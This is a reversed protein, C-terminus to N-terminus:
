DWWFYWVSGNLLTAALASISGTGQTVIDECYLFQEDALQMAAERTTPPSTVKMEIVDSSVGVLRAGYRDSWRTMIAVHEEPPPCANWNGWGVAAPVDAHQAVEVVAVVTTRPSKTSVDYPLVFGSNPRPAAPWEGVVDWEDDDLVENDAKWRLILENTDIRAAADVIWSPSTTCYEVAESLGQEDEHGGLVVPWWGRDHTSALESWLM